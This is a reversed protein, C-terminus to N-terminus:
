KKNKNKCKLATSTTGIQEVTDHVAVTTFSFITNKQGSKMRNRINETFPAGSIEAPFVLVSKFGTLFVFLAFENNFQRIEDLIIAPIRTFVFVETCFSGISGYPLLAEPVLYCEM